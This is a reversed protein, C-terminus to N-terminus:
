GGCRDVEAILWDLDAKSVRAVESPEGVVLVGAVVECAYRGLAVPPVEFQGIVFNFPCAFLDPLCSPSHMITYGDDRFEVIHPGDLWAKIRELRENM